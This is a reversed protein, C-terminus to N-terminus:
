GHDCARGCRSLRRGCSCLGTSEGARQYAWEAASVLWLGAVGALSATVVGLLFSALHFMM